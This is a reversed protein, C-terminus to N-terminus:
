LKILLEVCGNACDMIGGKIVYMSLDGGINEKEKAVKRIGMFRSSFAVTACLGHLLHLGRISRLQVGGYDTHPHLM